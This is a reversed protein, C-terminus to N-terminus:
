TICGSNVVTVVCTLLVKAESSRGDDQCYEHRCPCRASHGDGCRQVNKLCGLVRDLPTKVEEEVTDAYRYGRERAPQPRTQKPRSESPKLRSAPKGNPSYKDHASVGPGTKRRNPKCEDTGHRNTCNTKRAGDCKRINATM